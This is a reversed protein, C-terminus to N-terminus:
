KADETPQALAARAVAIRKQNRVCWPAKCEGYRGWGHQPDQMVGAQDLHARAAGGEALGVMDGLAEIIGEQLLQTPTM